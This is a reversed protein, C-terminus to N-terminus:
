CASVEAVFAGAPIARLVAQARSGPAAAEAAGPADADVFGHKRAAALAAHPALLARDAGPLAECRLRLLADFDALAPGFVAAAVPADPPAASEVCEQPLPAM